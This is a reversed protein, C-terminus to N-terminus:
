RGARFSTGAREAARAFLEAAEGYAAAKFTYGNARAKCAAGYALDAARRANGRRAVRAVAASAMGANGANIAAAVAVVTAKVTMKM